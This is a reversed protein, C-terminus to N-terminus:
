TSATERRYGRRCFPSAAKEEAQLLGRLARFTQFAELTVGHVAVAEDGHGRALGFQQAGVLGPPREAHVARGGRKADLGRGARLFGHREVDRVVFVADLRFQFLLRERHHVVREVGPM